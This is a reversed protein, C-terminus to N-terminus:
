MLNSININYDTVIHVIDLGSVVETFLGRASNYTTWDPWFEFVGFIPHM